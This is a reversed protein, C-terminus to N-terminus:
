NAGMAMGMAAYGAAYASVIVAAAIGQGAHFAARGMVHKFGHGKKALEDLESQTMCENASALQPSAPVHTVEHVADEAIRAAAARSSSAIVM